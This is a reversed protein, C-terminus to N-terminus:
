FTIILEEEPKYISLICGSADVRVTTEAEAIQVNTASRSNRGVAKLNRIM